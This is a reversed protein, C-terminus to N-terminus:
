GAKVIFNVSNERRLFDATAVNVVGKITAAYGLETEFTRNAAAADDENTGSIKGRMAGLEIGFAHGVQKRLTLGYGLNVDWNSFDNSGGTVVVPALVGANVGLNWTRYQARGGFVKASSSTTSPADQANATFVVASVLSCAVVKKITSYNM